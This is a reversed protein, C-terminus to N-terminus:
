PHFLSPIESLSHLTHTPNCHDPHGPTASLLATIFGHQNAPTIDHQPNDGIYLTEQPSIGLTHLRAALLQYIAPQPKALQHQYSLITLQPHLLHTVPGLTADLAPLTNAQANSLIGIPINKAALQHLTQYAGPMPSLPLRATEIEILLATYDLHRPHFLEALLQTLDIEPLNKETILKAIATTPSELTPLQHKLLIQNLTPDFAPDPRFPGPPAIILTNYIDFIAAKM